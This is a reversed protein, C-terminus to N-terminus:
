DRSRFQRVGASSRCLLLSRVQGDDRLVKVMTGSPYADSEEWKMENTSLLIETM